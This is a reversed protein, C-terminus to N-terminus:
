EKDAQKKSTLSTDFAMSFNLYVIDAAKGDDVLSTMANAFAILNPLHLKEMMFGHQSSWIVKKDKVDESITALVLQFKVKRCPSTLSAKSQLHQVQFIGLGRGVRTIRHSMHFLAFFAFM